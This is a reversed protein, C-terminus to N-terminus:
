GGALVGPVPPGDAGRENWHRHRPHRVGGAPCGQRRPGEDRRNWDETFKASNSLLNFLVQRVKVLDARMKGADAPCDIALQNRNKEVLPRAIDETETVLTAIDFDELYMTMRGAEIKSLDLIGSILTLLHRGATHIKKLDPVFDEQGLDACEEQLLESYGIIANLPTRLEHSMNALFESKHRGAVELEETKQELENFLRANEIAIVAQDAFSELIEIERDSFPEVRLRRVNLFGLIGDPTRFPTTLVTLGYPPPNMLDPFREQMEPTTGYDHVTREELFAVDAPRTPVIGRERADYWRIGTATIDMRRIEGDNHAVAMYSEDAGCLRMAERSIAVLVDEMQGPARSIMALVAATGRQQELAEGVERNREQLENFLRANEIAIVAQDAFTEVLEVEADTFPEADFRHLQLVSTVVGDKVIPVNLAAFSEQEKLDINQRANPYLKDLESVPMSVRTLQKLRVCEGVVRGELSRRTGVPPYRTIAGDRAHHAVIIASDSDIDYFVCHEAHCLETARTVIAALVPHVSTPSSSIVELVEAMATQRQLAEGVERNSERLEGLIRANDIAIAAQDAFSELLKMLEATVPTQQSTAMSLVGLSEGARVIPLAVGTKIGLRTYADLDRPTATSETFVYGTQSVFVRGNSGDMTRTTGIGGTIVDGPGFSQGRMALGDGHPMFIGATWGTLRTAAESIAQLTADLEEPSNTIQQLIESTAEQQRLAESVERNREELENFLRANEIAIVAQDAFGQLAAVQRANFAEPENRRAIIVGSIGSQGGFPVVLLAAAELGDSKALEANGAFMEDWEDIPGAM